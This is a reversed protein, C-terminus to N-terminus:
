NRSLAFLRNTPDPKRPKIGVCRRIEAATNELEAAVTLGHSRTKGSLISQTVASPFIIEAEDEQGADFQEILDASAFLQIAWREYVRALNRRQQANMGALQQELAPECMVPYKRPPKSPENAQATEGSEFKQVLDSEYVIKWFGKQETLSSCRPDLMLERLAERVQRPTFKRNYVKKALKAIAAATLGDKGLDSILIKIVTTHLKTGQPVVAQKSVKRAPRKPTKM